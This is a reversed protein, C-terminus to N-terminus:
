RAATHRALLELGTPDRALPASEGSEFLVCGAGRTAITAVAEHWRRRLASPQRLPFRDALTERQICTVPAVDRRPRHELVVHGSASEADLYAHLRFWCPEGEGIRVPFLYSAMHVVRSLDPLAYPEFAEVAEPLEAARPTSDGAGLLHGSRQKASIYHVNFPTPEHELRRVSEIRIGEAALAAVKDPNNTLLRAARARRAAPM